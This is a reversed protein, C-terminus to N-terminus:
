HTAVDQRKVAGRLKQGLTVKGSAQELDKVAENLSKMTQIRAEDIAKTTDPDGITTVALKNLKALDRQVKDQAKIMVAEPHEEIMRIMAQGDGAKEAAKLSSQLTDLKRGQKYYRSQEVQDADVEGYFRGLVPIGSMKVKDGKAAKVSSDVTKEIERLVGGGVTEALYKLREPSPSVVGAEYPTGGALQNIAKSIGLYAQGTAARLTSEKARAFGPRNDTEGRPSAKEISNGAFNKNFGLEVIPDIVTPAVLRLAGDTTFPNGGGFPSFSGTIEGVAHFVRSGIDKGGNLTLETMVRGTNPVWLFGLPMPISIFRKEGDKKPLPIIFSRTKVFEPIEDDDYGAVALMLAQMVGLMLGGALIKGGTPGALTRVAREAGQVSANFFAYLPGLERGARGKRNFDVTLERALRAAEPRSIGKDLAVKYTSLRVSNELTTNFGDLLDLMAHAARGPTLKGASAAHALEKEIARARDEAVAFMERYGTRGGDDQFQKFLRGWEGGDGGALERAIGQMAMPVNALVLTASGRLQTSGINIMGEQIDRTLNVLGFAPNYQTNIAAMWRTAKGVVSNALDLKTLGDLNKLAEAMRLGRESITNIMLVRDEGGVKLTIAGPLSKYIPNPRDVVKQTLPDVTRVTPVGRMGAEAVTPDVGMRQLERGILEPAMGPKITTWFDPNPHSLALGYLALGVRNKEARTIAAERQMLVHALVNTVQKTSGTARKSAPGKVAFGMGQPHPHESEEKFLPVYNAYAGEWAAVTDAKELGEMVLLKRTGKTIADVKSALQQLVQLRDAPIAALYAAATDTTMLDGKSNRGAGGDPLDQNVKAVQANREGAHRAILFDALEDVTAKHKAMNEMLPQVDNEIFQETRRAVRGPYLTEALRADFKEEIPSTKAIAQQIRKIDVRGDQLEYILNDTRTVDPAAWPDPRFLSEQGAKTRSFNIRPDTQDTRSFLPAGDSDPAPSENASHVIVPVQKIGLEKAAHARHRGDEKGNAYLHLPDLGKGALIFSKLEDINERSAEDIDLPRAKSLFEDPSMMTPEIKTEAYRTGPEALPYKLGGPTEDDASRGGQSNGVVDKNTAMPATTGRSFEPVDGLGQNRASPAAGGTEQLYDQVEKTALTLRPEFGLREYIGPEFWKGFTPDYVMGDRMVVAHWILAGSGDRSEGIVMDGVGNASAEAACKFCFGARSEIQDLQRGEATTRVADKRADLTRRTAEARGVSDLGRPSASRISENQDEVWWAANAGASLNAELRQRSNHEAAAHIAEQKTSHYSQQAERGTGENTVVAWRDGIPKVTATEVGNQSGRVFHPEAGASNAKKGRVVWDRAPLIFQTIIDNDTMELNVGIDKLWQRIVGIAKQVLTAQPTAQAMEALVEEAAYLLDQTSAPKLGYQKIKAAVETKRTRVIEAKISNLRKGFAGAFGYHGLAEHALVLLAREKTHMESAVIYVKGRYFFGEPSGSAGNSRQADNVERVRAPVLTDEMDRVVIVDPANAWNETIGDMFQQIGVQRARAEQPSVAGGRSFMPEQGPNADAARNSGTLAFEGREADAQAKAEEDAKTTAAAKEGDAARQQQALVDEKTPSTLAPAPIDGQGGFFKQRRSMAGGDKLAKKIEADSAGTPVTIPEGTDFNVAEDKGMMIVGDKITIPVTDGPAIGVALPKAAPADAPKGEMVAQAKAAQTKGVMIGGEMIMTKTVGGAKLQEIIATQDGKIALTGSTRLEWMPASTSVGETSPTTTVQTRGTQAPSPGDDLPAAEVAAAKASPAKPGKSEKPSTLAGDPQIAPGDAGAAGDTGPQVQAPASDGAPVPAPAAAQTDTATETAAQASPFEKVIPLLDRMPADLMIAKVPEGSARKALWQHHGDLVYGDSSVLISRDTDTYGEAQAVKEPSFEAQTPKLTAPDVEGQQHQIGRANLFNVMPGRHISKIQPMEERPIGLTGTEPAFNHWGPTPHPETSVPVDAGADFPDAAPTAPATQQQELATIADMTPAPTDAYIREVAATLADDRVAGITTEVSGPPLAKGIGKSTLVTVFRDLFGPVKDLPLTAAKERAAAIAKESLGAGAALEEFGTHMGARAAAEAPKLGDTRHQRYTAQFKPHAAADGMATVETDVSQRDVDRQLLDAAATEGADRLRKIRVNPLDVAGGVVAGLTGAVAMEKGIKNVDFGAGTGVTEGVSQGIQEGVEQGGEKLMAKPVAAASARGAMSRALAGEAGGGTLRGALYSAPATIAAALYAQGQDGGDDRVTGYTDGANQAVTSGIVAGSRAATARAAVTAPDIAAALKAARSGTAVKGAAGASALPLAMSGVTPLVQDALAGPNGVIVDAPNLAPDVIDQQFRQRQMGARESGVVEQIAKNGREAFDTVGKGVHDASALRLVDGVGKVATPGIQLVGAAVDRAASGITMPPIDADLVRGPSRTRKADMGGTADTRIAAQANATLPSYNPDTPDTVEDMEAIRRARDQAGALPLSVRGRGAGATSPTVDKPLDRQAAPRSAEEFDFTEKAPGGIADEFSFTEAKPLRAAVQKAYQLTDPANPNRPDSVSVGRRAKELGGPGGYYGAATLVPDGGAKDHMKRLYRVGARANDVPDKINWGPDAVEKFTGPRVQMGGVAGANSTKTNRGSGSEQEYISRAVDAVPGDVREAALALTLPSEAAEDFSFTKAM